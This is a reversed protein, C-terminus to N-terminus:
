SPPWSLFEMQSQERGRQAQESCESNGLFSPSKPAVATDDSAHDCNQRGDNGDEGEPKTAAGEQFELENAKPMLYADQPPLM